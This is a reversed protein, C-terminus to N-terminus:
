FSPSTLSFRFPTTRVLDAILEVEGESSKVLRDELGPCIKLLDSFVSEERM